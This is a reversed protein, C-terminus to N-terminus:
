AGPVEGQAAYRQHLHPRPPGSAARRRATRYLEVELRAFYVLVGLLYLVVVAGLGRMWLRDVFQQRYRTSFEAPLLNGESGGARRAHRYPPWGRWRCRRSSRSPSNWDRACPRSGNPPPQDRRGGSALRAPRDALRGARRGLGDAAVAGQPEGASQGAPLTILDLNQLVGGYWWAVLAANRGGPSRSLDVRREPHDGHGAIPRAAANRAPRGPLRARRTPRSVRRGHEAVCDDRDGDAPRGRHAALRPHDLRDAHGAHALAEGVAVRGDVLTEDFDSAPFQAVRLFVQEPPLWAINLKRQWLSRWDKAVLRAPLPEGPLAPRNATSCMVAAGPTSNGSAAAGPPRSAARQLFPHCGERGKEQGAQGRRRPRRNAAQDAKAAKAKFLRILLVVALCLCLCVVGLVPYFAPNTASRPLRGAFGAKAGATPRRKHRRRSRAMAAPCQDQRRDAAGAPLPPEAQARPKGAAGPPLNTTRHQRQLPTAGPNPLKRWSRAARRANTAVPKGANGPSPGCGTMTLALLRVRAVAAGGPPVPHSPQVCGSHHLTPPQAPAMDTVGDSWRESRTAM